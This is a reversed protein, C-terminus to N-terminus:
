SIADDQINRGHKAPALAPIDHGSHSAPLPRDNWYVPAFNLPFGAFRHIYDVAM